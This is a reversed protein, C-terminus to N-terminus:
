SKPPSAKMTPEYGLAESMKVAAARVIAALAARKRMDFRFEPITLAMDGAVSGNAFFFPAAIGVATAIRQGVSLAYGSRRIQQLEERLAARDIRLPTGDPGNPNASIARALENDDLFALIARGTAGYLPTMPVNVEVVYRVPHTSEIKAACIITHRQRQYLYLLATEDCASAMEQLIPMAIQLTPMRASLLAGIRYLELGTSYRRSEEDAEVFGEARLLQLLRHTTSRPLKVRDSISSLTWEQSEAFCQLLEMVRAVTGKADSETKASDKSAKPM